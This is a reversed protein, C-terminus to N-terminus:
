HKTQTIKETLKEWWSRERMGHALVQDLMAMSHISAGSPPPTLWTIKAGLRQLLVQEVGPFGTWGAGSLVLHIPDQLSISANALEGEAWSLIEGIRQTVIQAALSLEASHTGLVVNEVRQRAQPYDMHEAQMADQCLKQMGVPIRQLMWIKGRQAVMVTTFLEDSDLLVFSGLLNLKGSAYRMMAGPVDVFGRLAIGAQDVIAEMDQLYSEHGYTLAYYGQVLRGRMGVPSRYVMERDVQWAIPDCRLLRYDSPVMAEEAVAAMERLDHETVQRRVPLEVHRMYVQTYESPISVYVGDARTASESQAARFIRRLLTPMEDLAVFSGSELGSHYTQIAANLHAQGQVDPWGMACTLKLPDVDLVAISRGQGRM